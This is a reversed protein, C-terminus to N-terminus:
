REPAHDQGGAEYGKVGAGVGEGFVDLGVGRVPSVGHDIDGDDEYEPGNDDSGAHDGHVGAYAISGFVDLGAGCCFFVGPAM